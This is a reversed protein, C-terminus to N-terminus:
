SWRLSQLCLQSQPEGGLAGGLTILDLFTLSGHAWSSLGAFRRSGSFRMASNTGFHVGIADARANM